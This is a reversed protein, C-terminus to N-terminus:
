LMAPRIWAFCQPRSRKGGGKKKTQRKCHWVIRTPTCSDPQCLDLEITSLDGRRIVQNGEDVEFQYSRMTEKRKSMLRVCTLGTVTYVVTPDQEDCWQGQLAALAVSVGPIPRVYGCGLSGFSPFSNQDEQGDVAMADHHSMSFTGPQVSQQSPTAGGFDTGESTASASVARNEALKVASNLSSEDAEQQHMATASGRNMAFIPLLRLHEAHPAARGCHRAETTVSPSSSMVRARAGLEFRQTLPSSDTPTSDDAHRWGAAADGPTRIMFAPPRDHGDHDGQGPIEAQAKQALNQPTGDEEYDAWSQGFPLLVHHRKM